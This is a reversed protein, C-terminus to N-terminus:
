ASQSRFMSGPADAPWGSVACIATMCLASRRSSESSGPTTLATAAPSLRRDALDLPVGPQHHGKETLVVVALVPQEPRDQAAPSRQAVEQNVGHFLLM